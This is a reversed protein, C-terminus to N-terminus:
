KVIVAVRDVLPTLSDQDIDMPKDLIGTFSVFTLEELAKERGLHARRRELCDVINNVLVPSAHVLIMVDQLKPCLIYEEAETEDPDVDPCLSSFVPVIDPPNVTLVRLKPFSAFITRWDTTLTRDSTVLLREVPSTGFIDLLDEPELPIPITEGLFHVALSLSILPSAQFDDSDVVIGRIDCLLSNPALSASVYGVRGLIPLSSRDRPMAARFGGELGAPLVSDPLLLRCLFVSATPPVVITDLIRHIVIAESAVSLMSLKSLVVRDPVTAPAAAVPTAPLARRDSVLLTDVQLQELNHCGRLMQALDYSTFDPGLQGFLTMHTLQQLIPSNPSIQINCLDVSALRPFRKPTLEMLESCGRPKFVISTLSELIPLNHNHVFSMLRAEHVGVLPGITFSRLRHVHPELLDMVRSPTDSAIVNVTVSIPCNKSRALGTRLHDTRAANVVLSCWLRPTTAAVVFWHRCVTLLPTWLAAGNADFTQSFLFIEGLLELPIRNIPASSNLLAYMSLQIEQDLGDCRALTGARATDGGTRSLATSIAAPVPRLGYYPGRLHDARLVDTAFCLSYGETNRLITHYFHVTSITHSLSALRSSANVRKRGTAYIPEKRASIVNVLVRERLLIYFAVLRPMYSRKTAVIFVHVRRTKSIEAITLTDVLPSLARGPDSGFPTDQVAYCDLTLQKLAKEKGLHVRRRELCTVIGDVGFSQMRMNSFRMTELVPCPVREEDVTGNPQLAAFVLSIYDAQVSGSIDLIRLNPFAAFTTNWDFTSMRDDTARVDLCEIPSGGFVNVLDHAGPPFLLTLEEGGRFPGMGLELTIRPGLTYVYPDISGVISGRLQYKDPLMQASVSNIRGLIPLSSRDDPIALRMGGQLDVGAPGSPATRCLSVSATPPIVIADLVSRMTHTVCELSLYTLQTLTVRHPTTTPRHRDDHDSLALFLIHLKQLNVCSHLVQALHFSRFDPGLRGSLELQTLQQFIPASPSIHIFHLSLTTLRPFREPPFEMLASSGGEPKMVYAWLSELIAMTRNQMLAFFRREHEGLVVGPLFGRLRHVHPELLDMLAPTMEATITVNIPCNKSRALATRVCLTRRSNLHISCWLRPTTAAVVFWHRCVTLLPSLAMLGIGHARAFLFIEGLLEPPIRNIPAYSNLFANRSLQDEQDLDETCVFQRALADDRNLEPPALATTTAAPLPRLGYYPGRLYDARLPDVETSAMAEIQEGSANMIPFRNRHIATLQVYEPRELHEISRQVVVVSCVSLEELELKVGAGTGDGSADTYSGLSDVFSGIRRRFIITEDAPGSHSGNNMNREAAQLNILFRSVLVAIAPTTFM